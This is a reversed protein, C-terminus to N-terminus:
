PSSPENRRRVTAGAAAVAAREQRTPAARRQDPPHPRGDGPRISSASSPSTRVAHERSRLQGACSPHLLPRQRLGSGTMAQLGRLTDAAEVRDSARQLRAPWHGLRVESPELRQASSYTARTTRQLDVVKVEGTVQGRRCRARFAGGAALRRSGRRRGGGMGRMSRGRPGPRPGPQVAPQHEEIAYGDTMGAIYDCVVRAGARATPLSRGPRVMGPPLVELEDVFLAFMDALIRKAQSRMRNVRFHRYMREHLFMRLRSLDEFVEESFAVLTRAGNRVDEARQSRTTARRPPRNRRARRRDHERDDPAGGRAADHARRPRALGRCAQSLVPGILPVDLLDPITFLGAQLGDDVDHNNYAIDDAIAGIQAEASAYTAPRLDQHQMITPSTAGRRNAVPRDVVPGNHKVIGEITEWSLNLGDFDPYRRELTAM